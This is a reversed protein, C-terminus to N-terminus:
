IYSVFQQLPETEAEPLASPLTTGDTAEHLWEYGARGYVCDSPGARSSKELPGLHESRAITPMAVANELGQLQSSCTM